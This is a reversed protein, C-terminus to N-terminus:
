AKVRPTLDVGRNEEEIERNILDKNLEYYAWAEHVAEIPIEFDRAIEETNRGSSAMAGVVHRATLRRGRIYLQKRWSEPQRVLHKWPPVDEEVLKGQDSGSTKPIGNASEQNGTTRVDTVTPTM